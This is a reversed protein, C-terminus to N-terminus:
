KRELPQIDSCLTFLQIIAFLHSINPAQRGDSTPLLGAALMGRLLGQTEKNTHNKSGGGRAVPNKVWEAATGRSSNSGVQASSSKSSYFLFFFKASHAFLPTLCHFIDFAIAIQYAMYLIQLLQFAARHRIVFYISRRLERKLELVSSSFDTTFAIQPCFSLFVQFFCRVKM